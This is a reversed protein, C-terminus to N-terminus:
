RSPNRATVIKAPGVAALPTAAEDIFQHGKWQPVPGLEKDDASLEPLEM